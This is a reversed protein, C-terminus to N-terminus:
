FLDLQDPKRRRRKSNNQVPGKQPPTPSAPRAPFISVTPEKKLVPKKRTGKKRRRGGGKQTKTVLTDETGRGCHKMKEALNQMGQQGHQKLADTFSKGESVDKLVRTGAEIGESGVSSALNKAIPLLFKGISGLIGYGRMYRQGTFYKADQGGFQVGTYFNDWNISDVDIPTHTM